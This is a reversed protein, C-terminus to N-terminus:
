LETISFSAIGSGEYSGNAPMTCTVNKSGNAVSSTTGALGAGLAINGTFTVGSSASPSVFGGTDFESSAQAFCTVQGVPTTDRVSVRWKSIAGGLQAAGCVFTVSSSSQNRAIVGDAFGSSASFVQRCGTGGYGATTAAWANSILLLGLLGGVGLSIARSMKM